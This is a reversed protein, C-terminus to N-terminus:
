CQKVPYEMDLCVLWYWYKLIQGTCKGRRSERGLEREAFGSAASNPIGM